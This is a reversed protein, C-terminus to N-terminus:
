YTIHIAKARTHIQKACKCELCWVHNSLENCIEQTYLSVHSKDTCENDWFKKINKLEYIGSSYSTPATM